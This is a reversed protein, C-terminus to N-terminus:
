SEKNETSGSPLRKEFRMLEIQLQYGLREQHHSNEQQNLEIKKNLEVEAVKLENRVRELEITLATVDERLEVIQKQAAELDKAVVLITKLLNTLKEWM